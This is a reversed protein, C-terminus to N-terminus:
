HQWRLLEPIEIQFNDTANNMLLQPNKKLHKLVTWDYICRDHLHSKNLM